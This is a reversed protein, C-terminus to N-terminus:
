RAPLGAQWANEKESWAKDRWAKEKESWAKEAILFFDAPLDFAAALRRAVIAGIDIDGVPHSMYHALLMRNRLANGEMRAALERARWGREAMLRLLVLSPHPPRERRLRKIARAKELSVIQRPSTM